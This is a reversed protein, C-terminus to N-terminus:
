EAALPARVPQDGAMVVQRAIRSRQNVVLPGLLNATVMDNERDVTLLTLVLLDAVDDVDLAAEDDDGLELAYDPFYPWPVCCLFALEGDDVSQLWYLPEDPSVELLVFRTFEAFGPIGDVMRVVTDPDIRLEGFRSTELLVEPLTAEGIRDDISVM